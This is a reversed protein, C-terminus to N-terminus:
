TIDHDKSRPLPEEPYDIPIDTIGMDSKHMFDLTLSLLSMISIPDNPGPLDDTITISNLAQQSEFFEDYEEEGGISDQQETAPAPTSSQQLTSSMSNLSRSSPSSQHAPPQMHTQQLLTSTPNRTTPASSSAPTASTAPSAQRQLRHAKKQCQDEMHNRLKCHACVAGMTHPLSQRQSLKTHGKDKSSPQPFETEILVALEFAATVDQPKNRLTQQKYKSKIHPLLARGFFFAKLYDYFTDPLRNCLVCYWDILQHVSEGPKAEIMTAEIDPLHYHRHFLDRAVNWPQDRLASIAWLRGDGVLTTILAQTWRDEPYNYANLHYELEMTHLAPDQRKSVNFKPLGPPLRPMKKQTPPSPTTTNSQEEPVSAVHTSNSATTNNVSIDVPSPSSPHPSQIPSIQPVPSPPSVAATTTNYMSSSGLTASTSALFAVFSDIRQQLREMAKRTHEAADDLKRQEEEKAARETELCNPIDLELHFSQQLMRLYEQQAKRLQERLTDLAASAEM